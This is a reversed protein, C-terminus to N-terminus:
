RGVETGCSPCEDGVDDVLTGCDTCEVGFPSPGDHEVHWTAGNNDIAGWRDIELTSCEEKLKAVAQGARLNDLDLDDALRGTKVYIAGTRAKDALYTYVRREVDDIPRHDWGAYKSRSM